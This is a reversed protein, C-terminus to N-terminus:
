QFLNEVHCFHMYFFVNQNAFWFYNWNWWVFIYLFWIDVLANRFAQIFITGGSDLM